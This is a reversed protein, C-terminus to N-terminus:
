CFFKPDFLKFFILPFKIAVIKRFFNVSCKGLLVARGLDSLKAPSFKETMKEFFKKRGNKICLKESRNKQMADGINTDIVKCVHLPLSLLNPSWHLSHVARSSFHMRTHAHPMIGNYVQTHTHPAFRSEKTPYISSSRFLFFFLFFPKLASDLAQGLGLQILRTIIITELIKSSLTRANHPMLFPQWPNSHSACKWGKENKKRKRQLVLFRFHHEREKRKSFGHWKKPPHIITDKPLIFPVIATNLDPGCVGVAMDTHSSVALPSAWALSFRHNHCVCMHLSLHMLMASEVLQFFGHVINQDFCQM